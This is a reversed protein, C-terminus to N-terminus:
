PGKPMKRWELAQTEAPKSKEYESKVQEETMVGDLVVLEDLLGDLIMKSDYQMCVERETGYPYTDKHSRGIWFDQKKPLTYNRDYGEFAALEGNIYLAVGEGSEFSVAVHNWVLHELPKDSTFIVDVEGDGLFLGVEGIANIGFFVGEFGKYNDLIASWDWPYEQLAVWAHITFDGKLKKLEKGTVEIYSSLGDLNIGKGVVGKDPTVYGIYHDGPAVAEFDRSFIEKVQSHSTVSCFLLIEIILYKYNM